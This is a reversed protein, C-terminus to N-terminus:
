NRMLAPIPEPLVPSEATRLSRRCIASVVYLLAALITLSKLGFWMSSSELLGGLLAGFLNSGLASGRFGAREFSSIFIIGAFFVPTCLALTAVAARLIWSEYFLKGLPFAYMAALSFFLGSYAMWLPVRRWASYLLNAAVILLLLGSVVVANVIWTTGFLLAMKSVIQAELLMFGAGLFMFHLDVREGEGSAQRLFWGFVILVALSVLIVIIPLGPAHQYFYPWDDTTPAADQMPLTGHSALYAALSPDSIAKALREPSGAVFFRGSMDFGGIDAQFQVPKQGFTAQMLQYLRGAIWPTEVQFKVVFLGDPKLLQKARALAERTYVYNDIRINTFHSTTTHSDLLSFVILDFKEHSNEIYNRADNVVVHVRPSEYPHEFHLHKGLQLILPDIEVAEVHGAGNRLAAAVDNGMGSGLVLVSPPSPYFRYPMNYSNQDLPHQRFAAAHARVFEPSLDVIKQYLSSNTILSYSVLEGGDYQPLITLKQYPSWYTDANRDEPLALLGVCVLFGIALIRRAKVDRWFFASCLIGAVLTWVWPPQNLFCLLTFGAIGALSALVNVSYATIGKPANELYWGVVQGFPIFATAILAFLPVVFIMALLMGAWSTPMAPVGWIHVEVSAGLLQPLDDICRQLPPIPLKLVLALLLLPSLLATVQIRRRCLYCGLGFGLFCAVLVFNKFYAFIRIESSVWRIMLMETFLSLLSILALPRWGFGGLDEIRVELRRPPSAPDRLTRFVQYVLFVSLAAILLLFALSSLPLPFTPLLASM